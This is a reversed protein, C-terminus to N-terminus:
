NKKERRGRYALLPTAAILAIAPVLPARMRVDTWYLIHVTTLGLLMMPATIRPWRWLEATGLGAALALWLPATWLATALRLSGPYVLASPAVSWFRGLRALAARM